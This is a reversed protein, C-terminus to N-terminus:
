ECVPKKKWLEGSTPYKEGCIQSFGTYSGAAKEVNNV